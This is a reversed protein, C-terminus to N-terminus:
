RVIMLKRTQVFGGSKLQYLYVGSALGSADFAVSKFGSDQIGDVLTAVERGLLDFVKLTVLGVESRQGGVEPIQYKITTSPNFPNPYNQYLHFTVVDHGWGARTIESLPRRWVGDRTGLVLDAAHTTIAYVILADGSLGSTISQWSDGLDSSIYIGQRTGAFINSGISVLSLLRIRQLTDRPLGTNMALWTAGLDMSRFIGDDTGAFISSAATAFCSVATRPPLGNSAATWTVGGNTTKYIRRLTGAFINNEVSSLSLIATDALGASSWLNGDDTSKFMGGAEGWM